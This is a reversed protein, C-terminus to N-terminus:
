KGEAEKKAEVFAQEFDNGCKELLAKSKEESWKLTARTLKFYDQFTIKDPIQINQVDEKKTTSGESKTQTHSQNGDNDADAYLGLIAALAYRRLYTISKGAEQALNKGDVLITACSSIYEGSEHILLTTIGVEGSAGEVLQSVALGHNKLIPKSTEIVAGLDAYSSNFYPNTSNFAVKPFESQALVLAKSLSAISESKNM